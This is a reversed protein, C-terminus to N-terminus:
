IPHSNQFDVMLNCLIELLDFILLLENILNQIEFNQQKFNYM